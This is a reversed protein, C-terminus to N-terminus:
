IIKTKQSVVTEMRSKYTPDAPSQANLLWLPQHPEAIFSSYLQSMTVFQYKLYLTVSNIACEFVNM